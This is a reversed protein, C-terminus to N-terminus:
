AAQAVQEWIQKTIQEHIGNWWDRRAQKVSWIELSVEGNLSIYNVDIHYTDGEGASWDELAEFEVELFNQHDDDIFYQIEGTMTNVNATLMFTSVFTFM